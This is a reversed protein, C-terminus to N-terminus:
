FLKVNIIRRLLSRSLVHTEGHTCILHFSGESDSSEEWQTPERISSQNDPGAALGWVHQAM